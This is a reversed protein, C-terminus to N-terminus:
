IMTLDFNYKLLHSLASDKVYVEHGDFYPQYIPILFGEKVNRVSIVCVHM